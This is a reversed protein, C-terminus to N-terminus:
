EPQVGEWVNEFTLAWTSTYKSYLTVIRLVHELLAKEPVQFAGVRQIQEMKDLARAVLEKHGITRHSHACGPVYFKAPISALLKDKFVLPLSLLAEGSATQLVRHCTPLKKRFDNCYYRLYGSCLSLFLSLSLSLSVKSSQLAQHYTDNGYDLEREVVNTQRYFAAKIREPALALRCACLAAQRRVTQMPHFLLNCVSKVHEWQCVLQRTNPEALLALLLELSPALLSASTPSRVFDLLAELLGARLLKALNQSTAVLQLLQQLAALRIQEKLSSSAFVQVLNSLEHAEFVSGGSGNQKGVGWAGDQCSTDGLFALPDKPPTHEAPLLVSGQRHLIEFLEASALIRTASDRALMLGALGLAQHEMSAVKHAAWLLSRFEETVHEKVHVGTAVNAASSQLSTRESDGQV